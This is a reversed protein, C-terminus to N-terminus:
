QGNRTALVSDIAMRFQDFGKAGTFRQKVDVRGGEELIGIFFTPTGTVALTRGGELDTKVRGTADGKMCADYLRSDLGIAAASSRLNVLDLRQQDAFIRDHMQWFSGQRAACEAAEGAGQAFEHNALPFHRFAALLRGTEVYEKEIRPWTTRAFAGCYPCQFDSYVVIAAKASKNGKTQSGEL